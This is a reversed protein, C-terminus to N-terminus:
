TEDSEEPLVRYHYGGADRMRLARYLANAGVNADTCLAGIWVAGNDAAWHAACRMMWKGLGKGRQPEAIELAHVLAIRDHIACFGAGAPRDSVRGFLGTRPGKVRAMVRLRAEGIGGAEWIERM